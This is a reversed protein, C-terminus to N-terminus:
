VLALFNRLTTVITILNDDSLFQHAPINLARDYFDQAGSMSTRHKNSFIKMEHIPSYRLSTYISNKLLYRAAANRVQSNEFLLTMFYNSYYVTPDSQAVYKINLKSLESEYRSRIIAKRELYKSIMSLQSLGITANIDTFISREGFSEISYTWWTESKSSKDLGSKEDIPLGLYALSRVKDFLWSHKSFFAGGEGATILKMADFSWCAFDSDIGIHRQSISTGLACACDEFVLCDQPLLRRLAKVDVPIGGYHTIFVLRTDKAIEPTISDLSINGSTDIDVIIVNDSAQSCASAVAPFSNTPIIIKSDKDLELARIALFIADTCCSLTSINNPSVGLYEAFRAEFAKAKSGRGLWGSSFTALLDKLVTEDVKPAFLNIM